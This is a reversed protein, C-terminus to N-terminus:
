KKLHHALSRLFRRVPWAPDGWFQAVRLVQEDSTEYEPRRRPVEGTVAARVFIRQQDAEEKQLRQIFKFIHPHVGQLDAGGLERLAGDAHARLLALVEQVGHRLLEGIACRGRTPM